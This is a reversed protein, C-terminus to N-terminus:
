LYQRLYGVITWSGDENRQLYFLGMTKDPAGGADNTFTLRCTVTPSGESDGDSPPEAGQTCSGATVEIRPNDVGFESWRAGMMDWDNFVTRVSKQEATMRDYVSQAAVTLFAASDDDAIARVATSWTEELAPDTTPSGTPEPLPTSTSSPPWDTADESASPSPAGESPVPAGGSPPAAGDAATTSGSGPAASTSGSGPAASTSGTTSGNGGCAALLGVALLLAVPAALLRRSIPTSM